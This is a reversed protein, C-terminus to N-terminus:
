ILLFSKDELFWNTDNKKKMLILLLHWILIFVQSFKLVALKLGLNSARTFFMYEIQEFLYSLRLILALNITIAAKCNCIIVRSEVKLIIKQM